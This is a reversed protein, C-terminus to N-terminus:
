SFKRLRSSWRRDMDARGVETGGACAGTKFPAVELAVDEYVSRAAALLAAAM